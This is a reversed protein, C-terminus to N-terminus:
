AQKPAPIANKEFQNKYIGDLAGLLFEQQDRDLQRFKCLLEKETSLYVDENSVGDFSLLHDTSCCFFEALRVLTLCDVNAGAEIKLYDSESIGLKLAVTKPAIGMSCRMNKLPAFLNCPSFVSFDKGRPTYTVDSSKGILWSPNVHLENAIAEIVPLKPSEIEGREYRSVTSKNLGIANALADLTYDRLTRAEKIRKGLLTRDM